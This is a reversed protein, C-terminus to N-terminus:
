PINGSSPVAKNRLRRVVPSIFDAWLWVGGIGMLIVAMGFGRFYFYQGRIINILVIYGGSGFLASAFLFSFIQRVM